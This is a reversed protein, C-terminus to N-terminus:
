GAPGAVTRHRRQRHRVDLLRDGVDVTTWGLDTTAFIAYTTIFAGFGANLALQAFFLALLRRRGHDPHHTSLPRVTVLGRVEERRRGGAYFDVDIAEAPDVDAGQGSAEAGAPPRPLFLAGVM